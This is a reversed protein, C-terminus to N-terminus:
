CTSTAANLEITVAPIFLRQGVAQGAVAILILLEFSASCSSLVGFPILGPIAHMILVFPPSYLLWRGSVRRSPATWRTYCQADVPAFKDM